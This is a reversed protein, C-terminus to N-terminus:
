HTAWQKTKHRTIDFSLSRYEAAPSVRIEVMLKASGDSALSALVDNGLEGLLILGYQVGKADKKETTTTHEAPFQQSQASQAGTGSLHAARASVTKGSTTWLKLWVQTSQPTLMRFIPAVVVGDVTFPTLEPRSLTHDSEIHVTPNHQYEIRTDQNCGAVMVLLSAAWKGIRTNAFSM